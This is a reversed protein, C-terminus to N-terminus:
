LVVSVADTFKRLIKLESPSMSWEADVGKKHDIAFHKEIMKAGRSLAIQCASIGITHDSYGKLMGFDINNFHLDDLFTPYKSICYLDLGSIIVPKGTNVACAVLDTNNRQSYAIKYLGVGIQECWKVREKDFVSFYVEIGKEKGFEFLHKAQEFTLETNQKEGYLKVSDYLQFKALDAGETKALTILWEALKINGCFNQGIEAVLTAKDAM